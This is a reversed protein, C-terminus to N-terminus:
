IGKLDILVNESVCVLKNKRMLVAVGGKEKCKTEYQNDWVSQTFCLLLLFLFCFCLLMFIDFNNM